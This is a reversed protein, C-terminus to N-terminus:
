REIVVLGAEADWLGVLNNSKDSVFEIPYVAGTASPFTCNFTSVLGEKEVYDMADWANVDVVVTHRGMMFGYFM